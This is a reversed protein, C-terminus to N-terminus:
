VKSGPFLRAIGSKYRLHQYFGYALWISALMMYYFGLASHFYGAPKRFTDGEPLLQPLELGFLIVPRHFEGWAFAFGLFGTVAFVLYIAGLLARNFAFSSEPLGEPPKPAPGRAMWVLRVIALIMILVGLSDHFIRLSGRQEIATRPLELINFFLVFFGIFMIWGFVTSRTGQKGPALLETM